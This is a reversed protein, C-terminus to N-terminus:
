EFKSAEIAYNQIQATHLGQAFAHHDLKNLMWIRATLRAAYAAFAQDILGDAMMTQLGYTQTHKYMTLDKSKVLVVHDAAMKDALWLSLSDSTLQWNKPITDDALVMHSPLWVICRHQWGREALELESSATVLNPNMGALLLGFQDMALLALHHAVADNIMSVRQAQRVADAFVSGGPVILVKGDSIEVLTDLWRRLEPSGLLSGGLKVVWM